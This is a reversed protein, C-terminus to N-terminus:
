PKRKAGGAAQEGKTEGKPKRQKGTKNVTVVSAEFRARGEGQWEGLLWSACEDKTGAPHDLQWVNVADLLVKLLPSPKLELLKLVEKGDLLPARDIAEPLGLEVIRAKLALFSQLIAEHEPTWEGQWTPVIRQAIAWVFSQQWPRVAPNQLVVGIDSRSGTQLGPNLLIAADFLHAVSDTIAASLKLAEAIIVAVVPKDKNKVQTIGGRYPCVAAALWLLPTSASAPAASVLEERKLLTDLVHAAAIAESRPHPPDSPWMFISSHLNLSNILEAAGLPNKEIMKYTEIGVRERSVKTRLAEQIDEEKIAEAVDPQIALGFRSSFRVTRLIRLPDDLYTQRPPLPTRAIKKDLDELGHRTWDEVQRSHVNYFLSNITLDRRLADEEPTGLAVQDPIRSDTYTESRLGVFDCDLGMITTTGTELHKSQDPNAAVLGVRGTNVQSHNAHLFEVFAVAFAHGSTTSLAIDLDHSPLALLKDRVWGGAIRCEVPPELGAAFKDLLSVFKEEDDSLRIAGAPGLIPTAM